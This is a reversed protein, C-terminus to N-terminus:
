KSALWVILDTGSSEKHVDLCIASDKLILVGFMSILYTEHQTVAKGKRKQFVFLNEQM